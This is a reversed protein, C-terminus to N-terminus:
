TSVRENYARVAFSIAQINLAEGAINSTLWPQIYTSRQQYRPVLIRCVPASQTGSLLNTSTQQGWPEYGWAFQGWGARTLNANWDTEESGSFTYGAFTIALRTCSEDRFHVMMQSFQKMRGVLGGHFPALKIEAQYGKYLIVSDAATLNCARQFTVTYTVADVILVETIVNVVDSKVIIDGAAPSASSVVITASESDSAVSSVTATHNQGCYDIRTQNKRERLILNDTSIYYMTDSPGIIAQKFLWSDWTTWAQTLVNYAYTQTTETENPETTSLLYLRETEYALGSTVSDITSQGLIPQIVEEIDRSIIQVSNETVLCVGQNSLFVVQNNIVDASSKGVCRVTGDLLTSTFNAPSDGTVRWVGDDKLLIVSDRLAHGRFIEANKAGNPFFNVLPVAEPENQKAAYFGHPLSDNRSYVQTGSSFSSPLVPSFAEGPTTASARLYIPDGFGKAQLRMKGPVDDIGSTYQAYILSSSDRNMAKVLGQATDRLRVSATSSTSLYFMPQFANYDCTNGSADDSGTSAVTFSNTAASTITYLGSDFTGGAANSVYVQMGTSLGHAASTITVVNSARVWSAGVVTAESTNLGQFELSTESNYSVATSTLWNAVSSALRFTDGSVYIVYYTGAAISGGSQNAVYVSWLGTNTFGHSAYTVLLGSSSSCTGRVTQNGVGTRAVYRRTTTSIKAEVYNATALNTTDVVALDILHRTTCNLYLAYGKYLTVDKCLPPRFNAQLEGERSNENTYLEAGLLVDDWDDTYFVVGASIESSTLNKQEILKFDSFIGTTSLQQSSRYVQYFWTLTSTIESPVSYELRIPMAYAYSLTNGSADDAGTHAFTFTDASAVTIQYSGTDVEPSGGSSAFIYLYQGTALGHATSTVTVVNASRTWAKGTVATNTVTIIDSPAGLILNDNADQYGFVVRYGVILSGSTIATSGDAAGLFWTANSGVIFRAQMDLGQPAGAKFLTGNYATLKLMGNDSTMYFNGNSEIARAVTNDDDGNISVTVGTDPTITGESGTYNPSSGTDTYYRLQTEYAALLKDQFTFLRNLTVGTPTFYTYYGRCRTIVDDSPIVVNKAIELAGDPATFSNRQLRLGKFTKIEPYQFAM